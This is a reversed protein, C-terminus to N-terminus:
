PTPPLSQLLKQCRSSQFCTQPHGQRHKLRGAYLIHPAHVPRLLQVPRLHRHKTGLRARVACSANSSPLEQLLFNQFEPTALVQSWIGTSLDAVGPDRAPVEKHMEPEQFPPPRKFLRWASNKCPVFHSQFDRPLGARVHRSCSLVMSNNCSSESKTM